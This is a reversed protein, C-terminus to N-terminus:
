TVIESWVGLDEVRLSGGIRRGLDVEDSFLLLEDDVLRRPALGGLAGVVLGGGVGVNQTLHVGVFWLLSSVRQVRRRSVVVALCVLRFSASQDLVQRHVAAPVVWWVDLGCLM